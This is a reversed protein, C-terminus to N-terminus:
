GHVFALMISGYSLIACAHFCTGLPDANHLGQKDMYEKLRLVHQKWDHQYQQLEAENRKKKQLHFTNSAHALTLLICLM